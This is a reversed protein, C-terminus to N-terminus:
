CYPRFPDPPAYVRSVDITPLALSTTTPATASTSSPIAGAGVESDEVDSDLEGDLSLVQAGRASSLDQVVPGLHSENVTIIAKMVPEMLISGGSGSGSSSAIANKM